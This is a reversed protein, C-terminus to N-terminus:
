RGKLKPDLLDRLGDGILNLGLITFFIALGPYLMLWPADWVRERGDALMSGWSPQPPQVGLGLFSLSAESLIATAFGLTFLVLLPALLNPLIHRRLIHFSSGGAARAAQVFLSERLSLTESRVLRAMATWSVLGLAIFVNYLSPGLVAMVAIAFLLGPFSQVLTIFGTLIDDWRGGWYGAALGVSIGLVLSMCQVVLGVLLSIRAGYFVRTMVDRGQLDTGFPHKASPPELSELLDGRTPSYPTLYPALLAVAVVALVLLTGVVMGPHRLAKRLMAVGKGESM